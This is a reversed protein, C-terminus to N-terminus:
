DDVPKEELGQNMLLLNENTTTLENKRAYNDKLEKQLHTLLPVAGQREADDFRVNNYLPALMVRLFNQALHVVADDMFGLGDGLKTQFEAEYGDAYRIAENSRNNQVVVSSQVNNKTNVRRIERVPTNTINRSTGIFKPKIGSIIVTNADVKVLKVTNLDVGFKANIDHVIVVLVEDYYEDANIGWGTTTESIKDKRVLTQQLNTQLLAVELIKQFSQMSLQANELLKISDNLAEIEITQKSMLIQNELKERELDRVKNEAKLREVEARQAKIEARGENIVAGEIKLDVLYNFSSIVPVMLFCSVVTSLLIAMTSNLKRVKFVALLITAIIGALGGAIVLVATASKIVDLM